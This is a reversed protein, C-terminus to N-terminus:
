AAALAATNKRKRRWGLLGLAGLGTAFLPLAAPLPTTPPPTSTVLSGSLDVFYAFPYSPNTVAYQGGGGGPCPGVLCVDFVWNNTGDVLNCSGSLGVCNNGFFAETLTGSPNFFLVGTNATTQNYSIGNWTLSFATFLNDAVTDPGGFPPISSSDYSFTGTASVGTLPGPVSEPCTPVPNCGTIGVATFSYTITSANAHFAFPLMLALSGILAFIWNKSRM